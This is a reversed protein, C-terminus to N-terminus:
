WTPPPVRALPLGLFVKALTQVLDEHEQVQKSLDEVRQSSLDMERGTQPMTSTGAHCREYLDMLVHRGHSTGFTKRYDSALRDVYARKAM